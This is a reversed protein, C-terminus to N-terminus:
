NTCVKGQNLKKVFFHNLLIGFNGTIPSIRKMITQLTSNKETRLLLVCLNRQKTYIYRNEDTPNKLFKNRFRTQQMITKSLSKNMFPKHNGRIYKKMNRRKLHM